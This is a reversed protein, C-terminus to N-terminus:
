AKPVFTRMKGPNLLGKPDTEKKFALQVQDTQKMGGEELTYRHPNFIPCGNEEHIRIIEELREKTTYRVLPLGACQIQGDFKIFELHGIVEDPFLETMIRVKEVHDPGPYQVQLYTINTDLKLARLTTHNWTLEYAHPIGKMSEVTDSRFRVDGKMREALMALALWPSTVLGFGLVTVACGLAVILSLYGRDHGRTEIKAVRANYLTGFAALAAAALALHWLNIHATVTYTM